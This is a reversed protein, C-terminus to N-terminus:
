QAETPSPNPDEPAQDPRAALDRESPLQGEEAFYTGRWADDDRPDKAEAGPRVGRHSLAWAEAEDETLDIPAADIDARVALTLGCGDCALYGGMIGFLDAHATSGCAPCTRECM